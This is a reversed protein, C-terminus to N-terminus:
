MKLRSCKLHDHTYRCLKGSKAEQDSFSLTNIINGILFNELRKDLSFIAPVKNDLHLRRCHSHNRTDYLVEETFMFQKSSHLFPNIPPLHLRGGELGWKITKNLKLTKLQFSFTQPLSLHKFVQEWNPPVIQTPM